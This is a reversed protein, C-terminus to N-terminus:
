AGIVFGARLERLVKQIGLQYGAHIDTTKETVIVDSLVKRELELYQNLDLRIVTNVETKAIPAVPIVQNHEYRRRTM